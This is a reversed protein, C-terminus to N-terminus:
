PKIISLVYDDTFYKNACSLIDDPTVKHLMEVVTKQYEFPKSMISYYAMM